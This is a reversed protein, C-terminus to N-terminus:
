KYSWINFTGNFDNIKNKGRTSINFEFSTVSSVFKSNTEMYRLFSIVNKFNNPYTKGKFFITFKKVTGNSENIEYSPLVYKSISFKFVDKLYNFLDDKNVVLEPTKTKIILKNIKDLNNKTNEINKALKFYIKRKSDLKQSYSTIDYSQKAAELSNRKHEMKKYLYMYNFYYYIIIFIIIVSGYIMYKEKDERESLFDDIKNIIENM